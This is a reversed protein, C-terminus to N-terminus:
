WRPRKHVELGAATIRHNALVREAHNMRWSLMMQAHELVLERYAADGALNRFEGPDEELDFFLPPLATFHVYKYREGRLVAMASQDPELAIGRRGARESVLMRGDPLFALSWPHSLGRTLVNVRLTQKETRISEAIALCPALLLLLAILRPPTIVREFGPM